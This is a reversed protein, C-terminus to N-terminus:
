REPELQGSISKQFKRWPNFEHVDGRLDQIQKGPLWFSQAVGRWCEELVQDTIPKVGHSIIQLTHSRTDKPLVPAHIYHRPRSCM